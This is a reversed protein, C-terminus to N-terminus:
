FLDGTDGDRVVARLTQRTKSQGITSAVFPREPIGRPEAAGLGIGSAAAGGVMRKVQNLFSLAM